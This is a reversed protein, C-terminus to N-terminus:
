DRADECTPPVSRNAMGEAERALSLQIGEKTYSVDVLIETQREVSFQLTNSEMRNPSQPAARVVVRHPGALLSAYWHVADKRLSGPGRSHVNGDVYVWWSWLGGPIDGVPRLLLSCIHEGLEARAGVSLSDDSM